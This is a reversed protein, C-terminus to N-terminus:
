NLLEDFSTLNLRVEEGQFLAVDFDQASEPRLAMRPSSEVFPQLLLRPTNVQPPQLNGWQDLHLSFGQM